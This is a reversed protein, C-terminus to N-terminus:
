HSHYAQQVENTQLLENMAPSLSKSTETLLFLANCDMEFFHSDSAIIYLM